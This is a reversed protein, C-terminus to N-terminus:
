GKTASTTEEPKEDSDTKETPLDEVAPTVEKEDSVNETAPSPEEEDKVPEDLSPTTSSVDENEAGASDFDLLNGTEPFNSDSMNFVFLLSCSLKDEM